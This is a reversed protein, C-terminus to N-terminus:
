PTPPGASPTSPQTAAPASRHLFAPLHKDLLGLEWAHGALQWVAWIILVLVGAAILKYRGAKSEAFPDHLDRRAGPPLAATGTLSAGFPINIKAKTNVAWGNADLLPGLNRQRLKLWAILMSPGSIMLVVSPLSVYPPVHAYAQLVMGFATTIAGFAVGMAAIVGVDLKARAPPPPPTPPPTQGTAVGTIASDAATNLQQAAADDAASARKAALDEVWRILRKYPAWFAQRISIPQEV